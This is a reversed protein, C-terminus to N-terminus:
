STEDLRTVATTRETGYWKDGAQANAGSESVLIAHYRHTDRNIVESFATPGFTHVAEFAVVSGSTDSASAVGATAGTALSTKYISLSPMVAPLAGHGGGGNFTVLVQTLTSGHPPSIPLYLHCSTTAQATWSGDVSSPLWQAEEANPIGSESRAVARSALSVSNATNTITFNDAEGTAGGQIEFSTGTQLTLASTGSLTVTATGSVGMSSGTLLNLTAGTLWQVVSLNELDIIAKTSGTVTSTAVFALEAGADFEVTSGSEYSITAITTGDMMSGTAFALTGGLDINAFSGNAVHLGELGSIVLGPAADYDFTWGAGSVTVPSTSVWSGGGVPDLAQNLSVCIYNLATATVKSVSATYPHNMSALSFTM